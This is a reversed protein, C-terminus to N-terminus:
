KKFNWSDTDYKDRVLQEVLELEEPTLESPVLNIGLGRAFGVAFAQCAEEYSVLHGSVDKISVAKEKFQEKMFNRIRDSSFVLVSFLQEVDLDLLISGHQLITHHQRTQASGAVKRGEVVLEYWSPSDFCAASGMSEFKKKESEEALSVMDAQLGLERFGELLGMSLVRYSENISSPMMPHDESVIVSYTLEKDHLVARGGTPRRVFGLGHARLEDLDIERTARQFYGISLTPPNWGFFRVTPPVLGRSHSLLIAEDVAMNYAPGSFGTNLLRWTEM